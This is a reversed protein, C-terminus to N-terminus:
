LLTKFIQGNEYQYARLLLDEKERFFRCIHEDKAEGTQWMGQASLPLDMNTIAFKVASILAEQMEEM